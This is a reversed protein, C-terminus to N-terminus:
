GTPKKFAPDDTIFVVDAAFTGKVSYAADETASIKFESREGVEFRSCAWLYTHGNAKATVVVAYADISRANSLTHTHVDATSTSNKVDWQLMLTDYNSQLAIFSFDTSSDTMTTKYVRHGQHGKRKEVSDSPTFAMGDENIWGVEKFKEDIATLNTPLPTGVPALAVADDDSGFQLIESANLKAYTM